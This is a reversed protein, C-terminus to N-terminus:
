QSLIKPIPLPQPVVKPNPQPQPLKSHQSLIKPIPLPQPVVKPNPQPQPLKSHQITSQQPPPKSVAKSQSQPRPLSQPLPRTLSQPFPRPLSQPLPRPLPNPKSVDTKISFNSSLSFDVSNRRKNPPNQQRHSLESISDESLIRRHRSKSKTIDEFQLSKLLEQSNSILQDNSDRNMIEEMLKSIQVSDVPTHRSVETYFSTPNKRAHM